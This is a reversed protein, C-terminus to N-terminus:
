IRQQQPSTHAIWCSTSGNSVLLELDAAGNSIVHAIQCSASSDILATFICVVTTIFGTSSM